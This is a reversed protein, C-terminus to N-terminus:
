RFERDFLIRCPRTELADMNGAGRVTMKGIVILIQGHYTLLANLRLM